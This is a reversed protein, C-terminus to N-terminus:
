YKRFIDKLEAIKEEIEKEKKLTFANKVCTSLYTELINAQLSVVASKVANLQQLIEVCYRRDNVMKKIGEVQGAIKNLRLLEKSHDPYNEKCYNKSM